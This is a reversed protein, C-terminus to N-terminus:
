MRFLVACSSGAVALLILCIRYSCRAYNRRVGFIENGATTQETGNTDDDLFLADHATGAVTELSEYAETESSM